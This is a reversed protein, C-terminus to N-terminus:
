ANPLSVTGLIAMDVMALLMVVTVGTLALFLQWGMLFENNAEGAKSPEDGKGDPTAFATAHNGTSLERKHLPDDDDHPTPFDYGSPDLSYSPSKPGLTSPKNKLEIKADM